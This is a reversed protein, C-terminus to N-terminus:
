VPKFVMLYLAILPLITALLGFVNWICGLRRYSAAYKGDAHLHKNPEYLKM